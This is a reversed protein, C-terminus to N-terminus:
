AARQTDTMQAHLYRAGPGALIPPRVVVGAERAEETTLERGLREGAKERRKAGFEAAYEGFWYNGMGNGFASVVSGASYGMYVLAIGGLGFLAGGLADLPMGAVAPIGGRRGHMYGIIGVGLMSAVSNGVVLAVQTTKEQENAVRTKLREYSEHWDAM